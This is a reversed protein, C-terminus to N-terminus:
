DKVLRVSFGYRKNDSGRSVKADDYVIDRNWATDTRNETSSWYFTHGGMGNCDGDYNTRWGGPRGTFGSENTAGYNPSTWHTTGTEKLKGGAVYDGGLYDVLTQWESDTPMHWGVPAINRSDNVAYWNYLAGYDADYSGNNDYYCYAGSNLGTWSSNNTVNPIADGNRYRTVKLNEAMWWQNGIKVTKYVNGDIDTLTDTTPEINITYLGSQVGSATWGTKYARAKLTTTSSITIASSYLTSAETPDTGNTTYYISAGATECNIIVSQASTYTGSVPSFTPTAVTSTIITTFSQYDSWASTGASNSANVRWYYTTGEVLNTVQYSTSIIESQNFVLTTFNSNMSVQLSYSSAGNSANWSLAPNISIEIASNAPSTLTPPNLLNESDRLLRVSWGDWKYYGGHRYVGSDLYDLMRVWAESTDYENETASWYLANYGMSGFSGDGVRGGGPRATFGSENTAGTNPSEWYSTGTEKLKGGEDTGRWENQDAEPQSMGLYMELQKWEADTPVHWGAPAINRSDNVAYWNYLAGYVAANSSNNNYYCYAGTSLAAWASNGTVNPIPESNRYHTVKLNEAMWWQDGIKVTLYVNGDIDTVTRLVTVDLDTNGTIQLNQLEWTEIDTRSIRLLYQNSTSKHLGNQNASVAGSAFPGIANVNGLHGDLLLMKRNIQRNESILTYIYVGASVGQGLDNTADWVVRGYLNAQFGDYLTRIKQGLVNYIEIRIYAPHSLEYGIVTSPNFPNPYNQLLNFADPNQNPFEGIGTETIQISYQGQANTTSSFIRNADGQDILEVLANEVPESGNDRVVGQLVIESFLNQSLILICFVIVIFGKCLNM